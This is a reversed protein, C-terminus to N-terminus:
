RQRIFNVQQHLTRDTIVEGQIVLFLTVLTHIIMAIRGLM